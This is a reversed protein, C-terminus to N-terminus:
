LQKSDLDHFRWRILNKPLREVRVFRFEPGARRITPQLRYHETLSGNYQDGLDVEEYCWSLTRAVNEHLAVALVALIPSRLPQHYDNGFPAQKSIAWEHRLRAM